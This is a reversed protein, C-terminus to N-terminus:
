RVAVDDQQPAESITNTRVVNPRVPAFWHRIRESIAAFRGEDAIITNLIVSVGIVIGVVSQVLYGTIGTAVIGPELSNILYTGFFTGIISGFGGAISTGGMFVAAMVLLLFGQGQTPYLVTINLTLLVGAFAAIVGQMTFLRVKTAEVDIGMVRAVNANDGIFMIAEGFKHRNLIFWLFVTLALSWLAQAPILGFLKGVLLGHVPTEPIGRLAWSAGGALLVTVGYWFFYAAATAMISPVGIRAVMLGNIYGVVGGAILALVVGAWASWAPDFTRYAWSMVFGSFAVIAPFSLDIEGATIVFTLGLALVLQPPVTELFSQYIPFRLFVQPATIIFAGFMVVLVAAVPLGEVRGFATLIPSRKNM